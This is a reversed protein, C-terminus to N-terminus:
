NKSFSKNGRNTYVDFLVGTSKCEMNIIKKDGTTLYANIKVDCKPINEKGDILLRDIFVPKRDYNIIEIYEVSYISGLVEGTRKGFSVRIDAATSSKSQERLVMLKNISEKEREQMILENQQKQKLLEEERLQAQLQAQKAENQKKYYNGLNSYNYVFQGLGQVCDPVQVEDQTKIILSFISGFSCGLEIDFKYNESEKANVNFKNGEGIFDNVSKASVEKSKYKRCLDDGKFKIYITDPYGRFSANDKKTIQGICNNFQLYENEVTAFNAFYNDRYNNLENRKANVYNDNAQDKKNIEGFTSGNKVGENLLNFTNVANELTIEYERKLIDKSFRYKPDNAYKKQIEAFENLYDRAAKAFKLISKKEIEDPKNQNALDDETVKRNVAIKNKIEPFDDATFTQISNAEKNIGRKAEQYNNRVEQAFVNLTICINSIVFAILFKKLFVKM